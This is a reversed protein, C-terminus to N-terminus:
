RVPSVPEALGRAVRALLEGPTFPKQLYDADFAPAQAPDLAESPYGSVFLARLEPRIAALRTVMERGGMRPMLVDAVVLHIPGPHSRALELGALGHEAQLVRFGADALTRAILDRVAPEDDVVLVTANGRPVGPARLDRTREEPPDTAPPFAVSVRTGAGPASEIWVAGGSQLVIGHVTSLGLGTGKGPGKTTFFPDFARARVEADMGSGSDRVELRVYPGPAPVGDSRAAEPIRDVNGTTFTLTGGAPMADRANLSLNLIVQELQGRDVRVWARSEPAPHALAIREGLTPRLMGAMQDVVADLDVTEPELRQRRSFALLQRTLKSGREAADSIRRADRNAESRAPLSARLVEAFGLIVTLLNNFDHAVGGALKGLAELKQSQRLREELRERELAMEALAAERDALAAGLLMPTAMTILIVAQLALDRIEFPFPNSRGVFFPGIGWVTGLTLAFVLFAGATAAGRVGFRVAAFLAIPLALYSLVMGSQHHASDLSLLFAGLAATATCLAAVEALDRLRPRPRPGGMWTLALPLVILIGLANMRWWGTIGSLHSLLPTNYISPIRGILASPIPAIAACALVALVDKLRRCDSRFGLRRLVLVGLVAEISNGAASPLLNPWSYGAMLRLVITGLPVLPWYRVGLWWLGAVAVGTPLWLVALRFLYQGHLIEAAGVYAALFLVCRM